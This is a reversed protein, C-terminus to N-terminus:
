WPVVFVDHSAKSVRVEQMNHALAAAVSAADKFVIYAHATGRDSSIHGSLIAARRPLKKDLKVPVSRLRISEVAGYRRVPVQGSSNPLARATTCHEIGLMLAPSSAFYPTKM